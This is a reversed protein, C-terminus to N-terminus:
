DLRYVAFSANFNASSPYVQRLHQPPERKLRDIVIEIDHKFVEKAQQQAAESGARVNSVPTRIASIELRSNEFNIATALRAAPNGCGRADCRDM